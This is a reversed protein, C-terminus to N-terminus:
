AFFYTLIDSLQDRWQGWSHGQNVETFRMEYGKERLIDAMRNADFDWKPVGSGLWIKLPLTEKQRVLRYIPRHFRYAPSQIALNGFVEPHHFGAFTTFLGGLSTGLLARQAPDKHTQYQAEVWPVLENMFFNLYNPNAVLEERRRNQNVNDPNRPDVLVLRLPPIKGAELMNDLVNLLAGLRLNSYEHGDTTYMIPLAGSAGKPTYVNFHIPYAMHQSEMLHSTLTGHPEREDSFTMSDRQYDPMILASNEGHGSWQVQRNASDIIWAEDDIVIKYDLRADKPFKMELLWIDSDELRRGQTKDDAQWNTFDGRWDVAFAEGRFLFAVQEGHVYPVQGEEVLASWFHELVEGGARIADYLADRFADYTAFKPMTNGGLASHM